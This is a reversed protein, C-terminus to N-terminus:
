QAFPRLEEPHARVFATVRRRKHAAAQGRGTKGLLAFIAAAEPHEDITAYITRWRMNVAHTSINLHSAIEDDSLDDIASLLVHQQIRTFGLRPRPTSFLLSLASGYAEERAQERTLAFLMREAPEPVAGPFAKLRIYGGQTLAPEEDRAGEKLIRKLNYGKHQSLFSRMGRAALEAGLPTSKGSPRQLWCLPFLTLGEGANAKAVAGIDLLGAFCEEGRCRELSPDQPRFEGGATQHLGRRFRRRSLRFPRRRDFRPSYGASPDAFPTREVCQGSLRETALLDHLLPALKAALSVPVPLDEIMMRAAEAADRPAMRRERLSIGESSTEVRQLM